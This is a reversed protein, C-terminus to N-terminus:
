GGRRSLWGGSSMGSTGRCITTLGSNRGAETAHITSIMPVVLSHKLAKVAYAVLWDHAHIIDPIWSRRVLDMVAEMLNMNMQMVWHVFDPPVPNAMPVRHVSVGKDDEWRPADGELHTIVHVDHGMQALARSLQQAHPAIGRSIQTSVGMHAYSNQIGVWDHGKQTTRLLDPAFSRRLYQAWLGASSCM